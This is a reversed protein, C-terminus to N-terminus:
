RAREKRAPAGLPMGHDIISGAAINAALGEEGWQTLLAEPIEAGSRLIGGKYHIVSGSALTYRAASM